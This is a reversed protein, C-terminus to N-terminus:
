PLFMRVNTAGAVVVADAVSLRAGARTRMDLALARVKASSM